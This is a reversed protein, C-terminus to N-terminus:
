TIMPYQIYSATEMQYTKTGTGTIRNQGVQQKTYKTTIELQVLTATYSYLDYSQLHDNTIAIGFNVYNPNWYDALNYLNGGAWDLHEFNGWWAVNRNEYAPFYTQGYGSYIANKYIRIQPRYYTNKIQTGTLSNYTSAGSWTGNAGAVVDVCNEYWDARITFMNSASTTKKTYFDHKSSNYLWMDGMNELSVLGQMTFSKSAQTNANYFNFYKSVNGGGITMAVTKEINNRTNTIYYATLPYTSMYHSTGYTSFNSATYQGLNGASASASGYYTSWSSSTTRRSASTTSAGNTSGWTQSGVTAYMSRLSYVREPTDGNMTSYYSTAAAVGNVTKGLIVDSRTVSKSSSAGNTSYVSYQSLSRSQVETGFTETTGHSSVNEGLDPWWYKTSRVSSTTTSSGNTAGLTWSSVSSACNTYNTTSSRSGTVSYTRAANPYVSVSTTTSTGNPNSLHTGDASAITKIFYTVDVKYKRSTPRLPIDGEDCNEYEFESTTNAKLNAGVTITTSPWIYFTASSTGETTTGNLTGYVKTIEDDASQNLVTIPIAYVKNIETVTYSGNATLALDNVPMNFSYTANTSMVTGASNTWNVFTYVTNDNYYYNGEKPTTTDHYLQSSVSDSPLGASLEVLEGPSIEKSITGNIGVTQTASHNVLTMASINSGADLQLKRVKPKGYVLGVRQAM